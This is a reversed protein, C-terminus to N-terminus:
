SIFGLMRRWADASEDRYEEYKRDFFSHPAGPYTIVEHDIGETALASEFREVLDATIAHDDGAMLALVPCSIRAVKEIVTGSGSPRDRDPHGYFGIAGALGLDEAALHWANSGGFCFGVVYIRDAMPRLYEVAATVDAVLGAFTMAEIHPMFEFDDDRPGLGASRGFYDIALSRHGNEALRVALQEYFRYLGRVDPLVLVATNGRVGPVADFAAFQVGDAATLHVQRSAVATGSTGVPPESDVDFCM